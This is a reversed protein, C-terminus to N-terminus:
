VVDGAQAAPHGSKTFKRGIPPENCIYKPRNKYFQLLLAFTQAVKKGRYVNRMLKSFSLPQALNQAVKKEFEDPTSTIIV